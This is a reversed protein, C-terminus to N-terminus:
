SGLTGRVIPTRSFTTTHRNLLDEIVTVRINETPLLIIQQRNPAVDAHAPLVRIRLENILNTTINKPTFNTFQITGREFDVLGVNSKVKRLGGGAETTYVHIRNGDNQIWCNRRLLGSEDQHSFQQTNIKSSVSLVSSLSLDSGFNNSQAPNYIPNSFRVTYSSTAANTILRKELLVTTLNSEISVEADDIASSLHSYRFFSGFQGLNTQAYDSIARVVALRVDEVSLATLSPTYRVTTDTVLYVYDPDILEFTLIPSAKPRLIDRVMREKQTVGFREANVPKLSLFLKGYTPPDNDEGGWAALSDIGGVESLLIARADHPTVIRGQTQYIDPANKKIQEISERAAGGYAPLNINNLVTVVSSPLVPNVSGITSGAYTFTNAGISAAGRSNLYAVDIQQGVSLARGLRGDGFQLEYTGDNAEFLFYVNSTSNVAVSTTARVYEYSVNSGVSPRVGVRVTRTDVNQNLLNITVGGIPTSNVVFTERLLTGEYINLGSFVVNSQANVFQTADTISYFTYTNGAVTTSFPSFRPITITGENPSVGSVTVDVIAVSGSVSQPVYGLQRAAAVVSNRVQATQLFSENVAFNTYWGHYYADYALVDILMTLAAGEFNYDKLLDQSQMFRRLDSRIADFDLPVIQIDPTTAM